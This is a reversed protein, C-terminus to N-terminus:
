PRCREVSRALVPLRVAKALLLAELSRVSRPALIVNPGLVLLGAGAARVRARLVARGRCCRKARGDAAESRCRDCLAKKSTVYTLANWPMPHYKQGIGLLGGFSMSAYAVEGIAQGGHLKSKASSEGRRNFVTTGEVKNSAILDTTEDKEVSSSSPARAPQGFNRSPATRQSSRRTPASSWTTRRVTTATAYGVAGGLLIGLLVISDEFFLDARRRRRYEDTRAELDRTPYAPQSSAGSRYSRPGAGLGEQSRGAQYTDVM